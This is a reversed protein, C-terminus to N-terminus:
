DGKAGKIAGSSSSSSSSSPSSSSSSSSPSSSRNAAQPSGGNRAAAMRARQKQMHMQKMKGLLARYKDWKIQPPKNNKNLYRMQKGATEKAVAEPGTHKLLADVSGYDEARAAHHLPINGQGDAILTDCGLQALALTVVSAKMLCAFAMPTRGSSPRQFNGGIAEVAKKRAEESGKGDMVIKRAYGLITMVCQVKGQTIALTLPTFGHSDVRSGDIRAGNELLLKLLQHNGGWTAIQTPFQDIPHLPLFSSYYSFFFPFYFLLLFIPLAPSFFFSPLITIFSSFFFSFISWPHAIHEQWKSDTSEAKM